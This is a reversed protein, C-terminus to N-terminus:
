FFNSGTDDVGTSSAASEATVNRIDKCEAHIKKEVREVLSNVISL